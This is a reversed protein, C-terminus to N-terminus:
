TKSYRNIMHKKLAEIPYTDFISLFDLAIGDLEAIFMYSCLESNDPAVQDFIHKVSAMLYASREKILDHLISRTGPQLMINLNLQFFSKDEQLQSFLQEILTILQEHPTLTAEASQSIEIMRLTTSAFIERLLENKTAFHHYILGKSVGAETCISAMSTNEFGFEAFLRTAVDIVQQRKTDM